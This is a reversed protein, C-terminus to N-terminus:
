EKQDILNTFTAIPQDHISVAIFRPTFVREALAVWGRLEAPAVLAVRWGLGTDDDNEVGSRQIMLYKDGHLM